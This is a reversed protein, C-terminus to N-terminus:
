FRRIVLVALFVTSSLPSSPSNFCSSQLTAISICMLYVLFVCVFFSQFLVFNHSFFRASYQNRSLSIFSFSAIIVPLIRTSVSFFIVFYNFAAM